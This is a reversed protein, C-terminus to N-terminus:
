LGAGCFVCVLAEQQRPGRCSPCEMVYVEPRSSTGYQHKAAAVKAHKFLGRKVPAASAKAYHAVAHELLTALSAGAVERQAETLTSLVAVRRHAVFAELVANVEPAPAGKTQQHLRCLPLREEDPLQAVRERACVASWSVTTGGLPEVDLAEDVLASVGSVVEGWAALFAAM